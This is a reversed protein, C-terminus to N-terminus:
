FREGNYSRKVGSPQPQNSAPQSTFCPDPEEGTKNWQDRYEQISGFCGQERTGTRVRGGPAPVAPLGTKEPDPGVGGPRNTPPKGDEGPGVIVTQNTDSAPGGQESSSPALPGQALGAALSITGVLAVAAAVWRRQRRRDDRLRTRRESPRPEAAPEM